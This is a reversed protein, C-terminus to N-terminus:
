VRTTSCINSSLDCTIRHVAIATIIASQNHGAFTREGSLNYIAVNYGRNQIVLLPRHYDSFVSLRYLSAEQTPTARRNQFKHALPIALPIAKYQLGLM